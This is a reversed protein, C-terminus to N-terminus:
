KIRRRRRRYRVESDDDRRFPGVRVGHLRWSIDIGRRLAHAHEERPAAFSNVRHGNLSGPIPRPLLSAYLDSSAVSAYNHRGM